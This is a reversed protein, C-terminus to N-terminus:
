ASKRRQGAVQLLEIDVGPQCKPSRRIVAGAMRELDLDERIWESVRLATSHPFLILDEFTIRLVELGRDRFTKLAFATDAGYSAAFAKWANQPIGEIGGILRLFKVQSRGQENRDRDLWIVRTQTDMPSPWERMQPDLVKIAHGSSDRLLAFMDADIGVCEDEFAPYYGVTPYGGAQLMQMMLSSGCRGHGCVLVTKVSDEEEEGYRCVGYM